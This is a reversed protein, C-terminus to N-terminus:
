WKGGDALTALESLVQSVKPAVSISCLFVKRPDQNPDIYFSSNISRRFCEKIFRHVQLIDGENIM